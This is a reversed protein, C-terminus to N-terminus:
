RQRARLPGSGWLWETLDVISMLLLDADRLLLPPSVKTRLTYDHAHNWGILPESRLTAVCDTPKLAEYGAMLTPLGLKAVADGDVYGLMDALAQNAYAIDGVLGVGLTAVPLRNLLQVAPLRHLHDVPDAPPPHRREQV